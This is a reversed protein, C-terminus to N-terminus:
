RANLREFLRRDGRSALARDYATARHIDTGFCDAFGKLYLWRAMEGRNSTKPLHFSPHNVQFRAGMRRLGDVADLDGQLWRYREAHALLPTYGASKLQFVVEHLLMPEREVAAEFLVYREEGFCLVDGRDIRVLLDREVYYEAAAVVEIPVGRKALMARTEDAVKRIRESTNPYVDSIVHPTAVVTSVGLARLLHAIAVAMEESEAGDDIGPLIHCHADVESMAPPDILGDRRVLLSFM